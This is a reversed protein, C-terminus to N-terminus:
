MHLRLCHDIEMCVFLLQAVPRGRRLQQPDVPRAKRGRKKPTLGALAGAERQERWKSLHSSYLGKRRLLRGVDGPEACEDAEALVALKYKATFIRRGAKPSVEPDPDSPSRAPNAPDNLVTPDM